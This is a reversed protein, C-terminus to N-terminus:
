RLATYETQNFNAGIFYNKMHGDQFLFNASAAHLNWAPAAASTFASNAASNFLTGAQNVQGTANYPSASGYNSEGMIVSNRAVSILRRSPYVGDAVNNLWCGSAATTYPTRLTVMYNPYYFVGVSGGSWVPSESASAYLAPCYAANGGPKFNSPGMSYCGLYKASKTAPTYDFTLQMYRSLYTFHQANWTTGPLWGGNDDTYMVTAHYVGRLNNACATARAQALATVLSPMLLAALAMIITVVVLMELLTFRRLRVAKCGHLGAESCLRIM